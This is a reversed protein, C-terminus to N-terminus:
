VSMTITMVWGSLDIPSFTPYELLLFRNYRYAAFDAFYIQRDEDYQRPKIKNNVLFCSVLSVERM